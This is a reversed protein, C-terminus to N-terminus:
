PNRRSEIRLEYNKIAKQIAAMKRDARHNTNASKKMAIVMRSAVGWGKV